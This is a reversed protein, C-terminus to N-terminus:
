AAIGKIRRATNINWIVAVLSPMAAIIAHSCPTSCACFFQAFFISFYFTPHASLTSTQLPASAKSPKPINTQNTESLKTTSLVYKIHAPVPADITSQLRLWKRMVATKATSNQPTHQTRQNAHKWIQQPTNNTSHQVLVDVRPRTPMSVTTLSRLHCMADITRMCYFYM